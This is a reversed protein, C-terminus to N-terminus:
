AVQGIAHHLGAVLITSCAHQSPAALHPCQCTTVKCNRVQVGVLWAWRVAAAQLPTQLTPPVLLAQLIAADCARGPLLWTNSWSIPMHLVSQSSRLVQHWQVLLICVAGLPHDHVTVVPHENQM